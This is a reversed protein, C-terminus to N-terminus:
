QPWLEVDEFERTWPEASVSDIQEATLEGGFYLWFENTKPTVQNDVCSGTLQALRKFGDMNSEGSLRPVKYWLQSFM